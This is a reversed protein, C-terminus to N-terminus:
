RVILIALTRASNIFRDDMLTLTNQNAEIFQERNIYDVRM